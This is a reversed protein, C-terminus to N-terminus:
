FPQPAVPCAGDDQSSAVGGGQHFDLDIPVLSPFGIDWIWDYDQPGVALYDIGDPDACAGNSAIEQALHYSHPSINEASPSKLQRGYELLNFAQM